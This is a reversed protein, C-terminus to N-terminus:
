PHVFAFVTITTPMPYSQIMRRRIHIGSEGSSAYQDGYKGDDVKM